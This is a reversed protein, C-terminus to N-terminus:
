WLAMLSIRKDKGNMTVNTKVEYLEKYLIIKARVYSDIQNQMNEQFHLAEQRVKTIEQQIEEITKNRSQLGILGSDGVNVNSDFKTPLSQKCKQIEQTLGKLQDIKEKENQKMKRTKIKLLYIEQDLTELRGLNKNKMTVTDLGLEIM